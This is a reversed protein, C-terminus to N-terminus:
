TSKEIRYTNCGYFWRCRTVHLGKRAYHQLHPMLEEKTVPIKIYRNYLTTSGYVMFVHFFQRHTEISIGTYESVDDFKLDRSLIRLVGLILLEISTSPSGTCDRGCWRQFTDVTKLETSLEQFFKYSVRFRNHFQEHFAEDNIQPTNIYTMYWVSTAPLNQYITGDDCVKGREKKKCSRRRNRKPPPPVIEREKDMEIDLQRRYMMYKETIIQGKEDICNLISLQNGANTNTSEINGM